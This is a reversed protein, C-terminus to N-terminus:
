ELALLPPQPGAGFPNYGPRVFQAENTWGKPVSSFIDAEAPKYDPSADSCITPRVCGPGSGAAALPALAIATAAAGILVIQGLLSRAM